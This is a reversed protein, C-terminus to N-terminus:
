VHEGEFLENRRRYDIQKGGTPLVGGRRSRRPRSTLWFPRPRRGWRTGVRQGAYDSIRERALLRAASFGGFAAPASLRLRLRLTICKGRPRTSRRKRRSRSASRRPPTSSRPGDGLSSGGSSEGPDGALVVEPGVQEDLAAVGRLVRPRPVEVDGRRPVQAAALLRERTPQALDLLLKTQPDPGLPEHREAGDPHLLLDGPIRGRSGRPTRAGPSWAAAPDAAGPLRPRLRAGCLVRRRRPARRRGRGM